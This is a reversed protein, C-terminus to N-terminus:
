RRPSSRRGQVFASSFAGLVGARLREIANATMLRLVEAHQEAYSEILRDVQRALEESSPAYRFRSDGPAGEYAVLGHAKLALLSEEAVSLPVSLERTVRSADWHQDPSRQLLILVQLQELSEFHDLLFSQVDSPVGSGSMPPEPPRLAIGRGPKSVAEPALCVPWRPRRRARLAALAHAVLSFELMGLERAM